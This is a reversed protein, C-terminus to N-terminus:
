AVTSMVPSAIRDPQPEGDLPLLSRGEFGPPPALGLLDVITPAIDILGVPDTM